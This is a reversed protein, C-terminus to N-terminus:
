KMRRDPCDTEHKARPKKEGQKWTIQAGCGCCYSYFYSHKKTLAVLELLKNNM